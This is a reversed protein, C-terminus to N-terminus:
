HTIAAWSTQAGARRQQPSQFSEDDLDSEFTCLAAPAPRVRSIWLTERSKDWGRVALDAESGPRERFDHPGLNGSRPRHVIWISPERAHGRGQRVM